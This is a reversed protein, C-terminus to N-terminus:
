RPRYRAADVVCAIWVLPLLFFGIVVAALCWCIVDLAFWALAALVRGQLLQGLGCILLSAFAPFAQSPSSSGGAQVVIQQGVTNM